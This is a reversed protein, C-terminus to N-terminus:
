ACGYGLNGDRTLSRLTGKFSAPIRWGSWAIEVLLPAGADRNGISFNLSGNDPIVLLTPEQLDAGTGGLGPIPSFSGANPGKDVNHRVVVASDDANIARVGWRNVITTFGSPTRYNASPIPIPVGAAGAAATLLEAGAPNIANEAAALAIGAANAAADDAANVNIVARIKFNITSSNLPAHFHPALNSTPLECDEDQGQPAPYPGGPLHFPVPMPHYGAPPGTFGQPLKPNYFPAPM